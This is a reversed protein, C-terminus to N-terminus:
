CLEPALNLRREPAYLGALVPSVCLQTEIARVFKICLDTRSIRYPNKEADAPRPENRVRTGSRLAKLAVCPLPRGKSSSCTAFLWCVELLTSAAPEHLSVSWKRTERLVEADIHYGKHDAREQEAIIPQYTHLTAAEMWQHIGTYWGYWLM